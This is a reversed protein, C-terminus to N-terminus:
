IVRFTVVALDYKTKISKLEVQNLLAHPFPSQGVSGTVRRADETQM